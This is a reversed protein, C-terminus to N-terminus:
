STLGQEDLYDQGAATVRHRKDSPDIDPVHSEILGKDCLYALEKLLAKQKIEFGAAHVGQLLTDAPLSTPAAAELQLLIAQRLLQNRRM